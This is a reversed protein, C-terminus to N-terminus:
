ALIGFLWAMYAGYGLLLLVAIYRTFRDRAAFLPVTALSFLAMIGIDILGPIPVPRILAGSGLVFLINFINSGLINGVSIGANGKLIAVVSTVLEPLSTGLAVMSLGIVFAPIGLFEALTVASELVLQAGAVVAVLGGITLIWDKQGHSTIPEGNTKGTKWLSRLILIFSVLLVIGAGLDISGRLSLLVFVFTAAIMLATEHHLAKGTERDYGAVAPKLFACLGLVLAINAINSGVVNGLAIDPKSIIIANISVVWEPLSTGFAIVTFGITTPSVGYRTALGSGGDVFYDAGKVLLALGIIFLLASIIM